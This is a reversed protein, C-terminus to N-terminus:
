RDGDPDPTVQYGATTLAEAYRRAEGAAAGDRLGARAVLFTAPAEGDEVVFGGHREALGPALGLTFERHGARRLVQRIAAADRDRATWLPRDFDGYGYQPQNGDRM